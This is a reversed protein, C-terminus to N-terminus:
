SLAYRNAAVEFGGNEEDIADSLTDNANDMPMSDHANIYNDLKITRVDRQRPYPSGFWAMGQALAEAAKPMGLKNFGTVAEPALVGTSNSFFQEIGGNWVESAVWHTCFLVQQKETLQEFQNLFVDSGDYISVDDWIPKIVEWYDIHQEFDTM